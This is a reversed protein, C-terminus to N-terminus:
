FIGVIKLPCDKKIDEPLGSSRAMFPWCFKDQSCLDCYPAEPMGYVM